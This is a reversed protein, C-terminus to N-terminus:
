QAPSLNVVLLTEGRWDLRDTIIAQPFIDFIAEDDTLMYGIREPDLGEFDDIYHIKSLVLQRSEEPHHLEDGYDYKENFLIGYVRRLKDANRFQDFANVYITIEDGPVQNLLQASEYYFGNIRQLIKVDSYAWGGNYTSAWLAVSLVFIYFYTRKKFLILAGMSLFVILPGVVYILKVPFSEAIPAFDRPDFKIANLLGFYLLIISIVGIVLTLTNNEVGKNSKKAGQNERFLSVFYISLGISVSTYALFLYRQDPALGRPTFAIMAVLFVVSAWALYFYNKSASNKYAGPTILLAILPFMEISVVLDLYQELRNSPVTVFYINLESSFFWKTAEILTQLDFIIVFSILTLVGGILVGIAYRFLYDWNRDFLLYLVIIGITSFASLKAFGAIASMMGAGIILRYGQGKKQSLAALLFIFAILSFLAETQDRSVRTAEELFVYSTSIFMGTLLAALFGSHRYALLMAIILLSVNIFVIYAMGALYGPIPLALVFAKLGLALSIGDLYYFYGWNNDLVSGLYRLADSPGPTVWFTNVVFYLYIFALVGLITFEIYKQRASDIHEM